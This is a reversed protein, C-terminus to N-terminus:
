IVKLVMIQQLSIQVLLLDKTIQFFFVFYYTIWFLVYFNIVIMLISKKWWNDKEWM